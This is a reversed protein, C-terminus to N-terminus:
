GGSFLGAKIILFNGIFNFKDCAGHSEIESLRVIWAQVWEPILLRHFGSTRIGELKVV